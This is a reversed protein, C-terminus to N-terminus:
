KAEVKVETAGTEMQHTVSVLLHEQLLDHDDFVGMHHMQCFTPSFMGRLIFNYIPNGKKM